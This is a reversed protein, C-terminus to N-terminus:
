QTVVPTVVPAVVEPTAVVAVVPAVVVASTPVVVKQTVVGDVVVGQNKFHNAWNKAKNKNKLPKLSEAKAVADEIKLGVTGITALVQDVIEVQTVM